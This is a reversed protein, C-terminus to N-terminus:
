RTRAFIDENKVPISCPVYWPMPWPSPRTTPPKKNLETPAWVVNKMNPAKPKKTNVCYKRTLLVKLSDSFYYFIRYLMSRKGPKMETNDKGKERLLNKFSSHSWEGTKNWNSISSWGFYGALLSVPAVYRHGKKENELFKMKSGAREKWM